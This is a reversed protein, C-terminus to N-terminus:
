VRSIVATQRSLQLTMVRKVGVCLSINIQFQYLIISQSSSHLDTTIAKVAIRSVWLCSLLYHKLLCLNLYAGTAM